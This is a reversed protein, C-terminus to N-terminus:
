DAHEDDDAAAPRQSLRTIRWRVVGIVKGRVAFEGHEKLRATDDPDPSELYPPGVRPRRLWKVVAADDSEGGFVAAVLDGDQYDETRLVTVYDGDLIGDKEMSYGSVRLAYTDAQDGYGPPVQIMEARPVGIGSPLGGRVDGVVPALRLFPRGSSDDEPPPTPGFPPAPAPPPPGPNAPSAASPGGAEPLAHRDLATRLNTIEACARKMATRAHSLKDGAEQYAPDFETIRGELDEAAEAIHALLQGATTELSVALGRIRALRDPRDSVNLRVAQWAPDAAARFRSLIRQSCEDLRGAPDTLGAALTRHKEEQEPLDRYDMGRPMARADDVEGLAKTVPRLADHARNLEEEARAAYFLFGTGTRGPTSPASSQSTETVRPEDDANLRQLFPLLQKYDDGYAVSAIRSGLPNAAFESIEESTLLIFHRVSTKEQHKELFKLVSDFHPDKLGSSGCGIFILGRTSFLAKTLADGFDDARRQYDAGGLIISASNRVSGHLHLVVEPRNFATAFGPQEWDFSEWEPRVQEILDDYNTTVIFNNLKCVEAVLNRGFDTIELSGVTDRVWSDFEDGGNVKHLRNSVEGGVAIYDDLDGHELKEVLPEGWNRRVLAPDVAECAVIGNRLLGQWGAVENGTAALSLGSGVFPIPRQKSRLAARLRKEAPSVALEDRGFSADLSELWLWFSRLL